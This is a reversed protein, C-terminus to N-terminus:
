TNFSKNMFDAWQNADTEVVFWAENMKPGAESYRRFVPYGRVHIPKWGAEEENTSLSGMKGVFWEGNKGIKKSM